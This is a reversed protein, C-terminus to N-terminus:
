ASSRRDHEALARRIAERIWGSARRGDAAAAAAIRRRWELPLRISTPYTTTTKESL